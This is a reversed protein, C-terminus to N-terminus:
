DFDIKKLMCYYYCICAQKGSIERHIIFWSDSEANEAASIGVLETYRLFASQRVIRWTLARLLLLRM